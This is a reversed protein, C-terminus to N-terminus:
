FSASREPNTLHRGSSLVCGRVKAAEINKMVAEDLGAASSHGKKLMNGVGGAMNYGMKSM